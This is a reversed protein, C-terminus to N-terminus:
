TSSNSYFRTILNREGWLNVPFFPAHEPCLSSALNAVEMAEGIEAIIGYQNVRFKEFLSVSDLAYGVDTLASIGSVDVVDYGINLFNILFDEKLSPPITHIEAYEGKAITLSFRKDSMAIIYHGAGKRQPIVNEIKEQDPWIINQCSEVGKELLATKNWVLADFTFVNGDYLFPYFKYDNEHMLFMDSTPPARQTELLGWVYEFFM